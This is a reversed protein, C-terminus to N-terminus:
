PLVEEVIITSPESNRAITVTSASDTNFYIAYTLASTSSPSDIYEITVPIGSNGAVRYNFFSGFGNTANGLNSAGRNLTWRCSKDVTTGVELYFTATVKIKNSASTPTINVTINTAAYTQLTTASSSTTTFSQRQIYSLQGYAAADSAASGNALGTIKKSSMAVATSITVGAGSDGWTIIATGLSTPSGGFGLDWVGASRNEVLGYNAGSSTIALAPKLNTDSQFYQGQVGGGNVLISGNITAGGAVDLTASPVKGIGVGGGTLVVLGNSAGVNLAQTSGSGAVTLLSNVTGSSVYFTSGAQLSAQNNIYNGPVVTSVIVGQANTALVSNTITTLRTTSSITVLKTFSNQGTWTNTSNLLNAVAGGSALTALSIPGTSIDTFYMKNDSSKQYMRSSNTGPILQTDANVSNVYFFCLSLVTLLLKKM